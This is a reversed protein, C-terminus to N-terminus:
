EPPAFLTVILPGSLIVLACLGAFAILYQNARRRILPYNKQAMQEFFWPVWASNSAVWLMGTLEGIQYAFTYLGAAARGVYRDTLIRDFHALIFGSLAHPILPVGYLFAYRWFDRRFWTKGRTMIYRFLVVGFTVSAIVTGIIRALANNGPFTFPLLILLVPLALKVAALLTSTIAYNRYRYEIQWVASAANVWLEGLTILAALLLYLKPLDFLNELLTSPVVWLVLMAILCSLSGLVTSASVFRPFSTEDYDYKAPSIAGYVNLTIVSTFIAVWSFFVSVTGYENVTMLRTFVFVGVFALGRQGITALLYWIGSKVLKSDRYRSYLKNAQRLM